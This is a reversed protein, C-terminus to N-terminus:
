LFSKKRDNKVQLQFLRLLTICIQITPPVVRVACSFNVKHNIQFRSCFDQCKKKLKQGSTFFNLSNQRFMLLNEHFESTNQVFETTRLILCLFISSHWFARTYNKFLKSLNEFLKSPNEFLESPNAFLQLLFRIFRYIGWNFNSFIEYCRFNKILESLDTSNCNQKTNGNNHYKLYYNM